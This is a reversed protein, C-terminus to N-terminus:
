TLGARAVEAGTDDLLVAQRVRSLASSDISVIHVPSTLAQTVFANDLPKAFIARVVLRDGDREIRTVRIGFGGTPQQGQFVAVLGVGEPLTLSPRLSAIRARAQDSSGVILAPGGEHRSTAASAIDDFAM